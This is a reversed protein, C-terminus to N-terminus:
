ARPNPVARITDRRRPAKGDLQSRAAAMAERLAAYADANERVAVIADRFSVRLTVVVRFANGKHHHPRLADISLHINALHGDHDALSAARERAERALAESPDMHRFVIQVPREM